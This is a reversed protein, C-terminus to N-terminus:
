YLFWLLKSACLALKKSLYGNVPAWRFKKSSSKKYVRKVYSSNSNVNYDDKCKVIYIDKVKDVLEIWGNDIKFKNENLSNEEDSYDIFSHFSNALVSKLEFLNYCYFLIGSDGTVFGALAIFVVLKFKCFLIDLKM